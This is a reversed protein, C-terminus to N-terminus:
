YQYRKFLDPYRYYRIHAEAMLECCYDTTWTAFICQPSLKLQKQSQNQDHPIMKQRVSAQMMM